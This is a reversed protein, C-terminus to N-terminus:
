GTVEFNGSNANREVTYVGQKLGYQRMISPWFLWALGMAPQFLPFYGYDAGFHRWVTRGITEPIILSLTGVVLTLITEFLLVGVSLRWAWRRRYAFGITATLYCVAAVLTLSPALYNVVGDKLLLQFLARVVTSLALLPYSVTLIYGLVTVLETSSSKPAAQSSGERTRAM